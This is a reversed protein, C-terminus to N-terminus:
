KKAHVRELVTEAYNVPIVYMGAVSSIEAKASFIRDLWADVYRKQVVIKNGLYRANKIEGSKLATRIANIGIVGNCYSHIVDANM